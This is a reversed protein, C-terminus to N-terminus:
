KKYWGDITNYTLSSIDKIVDALESLDRGKTMICLLYNYEPYYIIGCDHLERSYIKGGADAFDREGFKDAVNINPPTGADIGQPFDTKDLLELAKESM